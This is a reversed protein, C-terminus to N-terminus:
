IRALDAQCALYAVGYWAKATSVTAEMVARAKATEGNMYHYMAIGYSYAPVYKDALGDVLATLEELRMEGKFLLLQHKYVELMNPTDKEMAALLGRAKEGEGKGARYLCLYQWYMICARYEGDPVACPMAGDYLAAAKDFNGRFYHILALYHWPQWHKDFLRLCFVLDAEAYDFNSISVHRHGRHKYILQNFPDDPILRTFADIAELYSDRSNLNQDLKEEIQLIKEETSPSFNTARDIIM